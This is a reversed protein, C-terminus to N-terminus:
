MSTKFKDGKNQCVSIKEYMREKEQYIGHKKLRINRVSVETVRRNGFSTEGRHKGVEM